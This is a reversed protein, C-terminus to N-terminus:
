YGKDGIRRNLRGYNRIRGFDPLHKYPIKQECFVLSIMEQLLTWLENIMRYLQYVEQMDNMNRNFVATLSYM